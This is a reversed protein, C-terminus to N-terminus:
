GVTCQAPSGSQLWGPGPGAGQACFNDILRQLSKRGGGPNLGYCELANGGLVREAMAPDVSNRRILDAVVDGYFPWDPVQSLMLWDSGYMVREAVTRGASLGRRLAGALKGQSQGDRLLEDWYGLDAYVRLRGEQDMLEIFDETWDGTAHPTAGGFHGANVYLQQVSSVMDRLAKWGAAGALRDHEDDRGMSENAHAMVPVGERDCLEYLLRLRKDLEKPDPGPHCGTRCIQANNYPAFGMPPYIKVGVCGHNQIAREVLDLSAGHDKIDAWPNYAVLPLMFGRSLLSLQEHLLVQDQLHSAQGPPAVWHNFDVMAAFCGSLPLSPSGEACRKIYVRLNHHRPSLMFRVFQFVARMDFATRQEATLQLERLARLEGSPRLRVLGGDSFASEVYELSFEFPVQPLTDKVPPPLAQAAQNVLERIVPARDNIAKFLERANLRASEEIKRDLELTAETLSFPAVRAATDCLDRMESAPSPALSALYQALPALAIVLEKLKQTPMSHAVSTSMFGKVPVDRANFLHAHADFYRAHGQWARLVEPGALFPQPMPDCLGDISPRPPVLACGTFGATALATAGALLSRREPDFPKTSM